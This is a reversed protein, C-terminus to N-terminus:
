VSLLVENKLLQTVEDVDVDFLISLHQGYLELFSDLDKEDKVSDVIHTSTRDIADVLNIVRSPANAQLASSAM